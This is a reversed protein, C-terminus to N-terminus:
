QKSRVDPPTLPQSNDVRISAGPNLKLQGTTVVEEGASLGSTIAVRDEREQGTTM